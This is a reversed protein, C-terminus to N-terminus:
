RKPVRKSNREGRLRRFDDFEPYNRYTIASSGSKERGSSASTTPFVTELFTPRLAQAAPTARYAAETAPRIAKSGLAPQRTVGLLVIVGHIFSQAPGIFCDRRSYTM